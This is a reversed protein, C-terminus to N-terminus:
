RSRTKVACSSAQAAPVFTPAPAHGPAAAGSAAGAKVKRKVDQADEGATAIVALLEGVKVKQGEPAAIHALTGSEFAEMPM